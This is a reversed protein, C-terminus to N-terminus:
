EAQAETAEVAAWGVLGLDAARGAGDEAMIAVPAALDAAM